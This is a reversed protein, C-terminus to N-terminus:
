PQRKYGFTVWAIPSCHMGEACSLGAQRGPVEKLWARVFPPDATKLGVGSAQAATWILARVASPVEVLFMGGRVLADRMAAEAEGSEDAAHSAEEHPFVAETPKVWQGGNAKTWLVPQQLLMHYLTDVLLGWPEAPRHHPWLQYYQEVKGDLESQVTELLRAYSPAIVDQLLACNWDSRMKGAGMLDSGYWIDRRNSSLEFFGNVHVPLGSSSPLPLLCYPRGHVSIQGANSDSAPGLSLRAAVGGWPVPQLGYGAVEKSISMERARGGGMSQAVLWSGGDDHPTEAGPGDTATMRLKTSDDVSGVGRLDHMAARVLRHLRQRDPPANTRADAVELKRVLTASSDGAHWVSVEVTHIHTLFLALEPLMSAFESVLEQAGTPTCARSAIRSRSAQDATRLPLRFITGQLEEAMTCGFVRFPALQDEYRQLVGPKLFNIM